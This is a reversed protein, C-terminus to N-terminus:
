GRGIMAGVWRAATRAAGPRLARRRVEELELRMRRLREDDDWLKQTEAYLRRAEGRLLLLEPVVEKGAILNASAFWPVTLLRRAAARLLSSGVVYLVINPVGRLATELSGTGSKVLALRARGLVQALDPSTEIEEGGPLRRLMEVIEARRRPDAQAVVARFRRGEQRLLAAARVMLPLHLAIDGPRSGPLLALTPTSGSEPAPRPPPAAAITDAVPHGSFGAHVGAARFLPPEFPFICLAASAARAFSKLRWPAWGWLQPCIYYLTPLGLRRAERGLVLNLAPSDVLIVLDPRERELCALTRAFAGCFFPIRRLVPLFGMVPRSTLDALLEVGAEELRRGGLGLWHIPVQQEVLQDVLRLAHTEGSPDAAALFLTVERDPAAAAAAAPPPPAPATTAEGAALLRAQRRRVAAARPLFLLLRLPFLAAALGERALLFAVRFWQAPGPKMGQPRLSGEWSLRRHTVLYCLLACLGFVTEEPWLPLGAQGAMIPYYVDFDCFKFLSWDRIVQVFYIAFELVIFVGVAFAVHAQTRFFTSALLTLGLFFYVTITAHISSLVLPLVGIEEGVWPSILVLSLSSLFIGAALGLAIVATKEALIRGRSVPLSLLAELTGNERERVIVFTGLLMAAGIGIVNVNKFFHHLTTYAAYRTDPVVLTLFPEKLFDFPILRGLYQLFGLKSIEALVDRLEPWYVIAIVLELELVLLYAVLVPLTERFTKRAIM